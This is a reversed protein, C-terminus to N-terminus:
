PQQLPIPDRRPRSSRPPVLHEVSEDQVAPGLRSPEHAREEVDSAEQEVELLDEPTYPEQPGRAGAGGHALDHANPNM